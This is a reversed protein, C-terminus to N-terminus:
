SIEDRLSCFYADHDQPGALTVPTYPTRSDEPYYGYQEFFTLRQQEGYAQARETIVQSSLVPRTSFLLDLHRCLDLMVELEEVTSCDRIHTLNDIERFPQPPANRCLLYAHHAQKDAAYVALRLAHRLHLDGINGRYQMQDPRALAFQYLSHADAYTERLADRIQYQDFHKRAFTAALRRSGQALAIRERIWEEGYGHKRWFPVHRESWAAFGKSLLATEELFGDILVEVYQAQTMLM